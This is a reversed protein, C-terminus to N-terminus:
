ISGEAILMLALSHWHEPDFDSLVSLFGRTEKMDCVPHVYETDALRWQFISCAVGHSHVTIAKHIATHSLTLSSWLVILIVNRHCPSNKRKFIVNNM